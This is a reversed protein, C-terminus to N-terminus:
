RPAYIRNNNSLNCCTPLTKDKWQQLLDPIKVVTSITTVVLDALKLLHEFMKLIAFVREMNYECLKQQYLLMKRYVCIYM